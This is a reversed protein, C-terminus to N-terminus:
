GRSTILAQGDLGPRHVVRSTSPSSVRPSQMKILMFYYPFLILTQWPFTVFRAGKMRKRVIMLMKRGYYYSRYPTM